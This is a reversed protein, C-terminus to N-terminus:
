RTELTSSSRGGSGMSDHRRNQCSGSCNYILGLTHMACRQRRKVTCALSLLRTLLPLACIECSSCRIRSSRSAGRATRATTWKFTSTTCVDLLISHPFRQRPYHAISTHPTVQDPQLQVLRRHHPSLSVSDHLRSAQLRLPHSVDLMAMIIDVCSTLCDLCSSSGGNSLSRVSSVSRLVFTSLRIVRGIFSTPMGDDRSSAANSINIVGPFLLVGAPIGLRAKASLGAKGNSGFVAISCRGESSVFVGYYYVHLLLGFINCDSADATLEDRTAVTQRTIGALDTM